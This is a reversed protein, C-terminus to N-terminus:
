REGEKRRVDLTGRPKTRAGNKEIENVGMLETMPKKVKYQHCCM